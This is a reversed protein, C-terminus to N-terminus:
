AWKVCPCSPGTPALLELLTSTAQSSDGLSEPAGPSLNWNWGIHNGKGDGGGCPLYLQGFLWAAPRMEWVLFLIISPSALYSFDKCKTYCTSLIIKEERM